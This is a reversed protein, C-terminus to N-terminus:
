RALPIPAVKGMRVVRTVLGAAALTLFVGLVGALGTALAANALGPLQYDAALAPISIAPWHAVHFSLKAAVDELGDPLSSALPSLVGAMVVAGAIMALAGRSTLAWNAAGAPSSARAVLYVVVGTALAEGWGILAHVALMNSLVEGAPAVGSLIIEASCAVAALQVSVWAAFAAPVPYLTTNEKAGAPQLRKGLILQYCLWGGLPAIVAMNFVNAGLALLGGDAFFLAQTSLVIAMLIVAAWPGALIAALTGGILHGSTGHLVPYNLMQAAFIGGAIAALSLVPVRSESTRLKYASWAVAATSVVTTATCVPGNLFENPLHM